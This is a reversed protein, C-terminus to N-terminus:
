VCDTFFGLCFIMKVQIIFSKNDHYSRTQDYDKRTMLKLMVVIQSFLHFSLAENKWVRSTQTLFLATIIFHHWPSVKNFLGPPRLILTPSHALVTTKILIVLHDFSSPPYIQLQHVKSIAPNDFSYVDQLISPISQGEPWSCLPSSM